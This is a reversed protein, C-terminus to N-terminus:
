LNKKTREDIEAREKETRDFHQWPFEFWADLDPDCPRGVDKAGGPAPRLVTLPEEDDPPAESSSSGKVTYDATYGWQPGCYCLSFPQEVDVWRFPDYPGGRGGVFPWM